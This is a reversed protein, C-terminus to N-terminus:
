FITVFFQAIVSALIISIIFWNMKKLYEINTRIEAMKIKVEGLEENLTALHREVKELRRNQELNIYGKPM